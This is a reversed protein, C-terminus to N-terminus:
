FHQVFKCGLKLVQPHDDLDQYLLVRTRRAQVAALVGHVM